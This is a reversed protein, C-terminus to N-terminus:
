LNLGPSGRPVLGKEKLWQSSLIKSAYRDGGDCLMTVFVKGSGKNELALQYTAWVNLAASTGVFLQDKDKLHYLMDIMAQDSVRLGRDVKAQKFNETLRMIGIGETVSGGEAQYVGKELYSLVGSGYPDAAVTLIAPNKEKLYRSVGGLTGGTGVSAVFADIKGQTDTWIEPGTTQYHARFNALNEFQNAWYFDSNQEAIIRAQHYFHGDQSFPCPPLLRVEAGLAKLRQVKEEAQNNPMTIVVKYGRPLGLTALGIGTNGATGEVITGQPKLFGKAEAELIIQKAARDKVSGGPNNYEAKGYIRCGTAESLSRILLLPTKGVQNLLDTKEM